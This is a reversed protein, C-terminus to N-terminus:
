GSLYFIIIDDFLFVMHAKWLVWIPVTAVEVISTLILRHLVTRITFHWYLLCSEWQSGAYVRNFSLDDHILHYSIFDIFMM